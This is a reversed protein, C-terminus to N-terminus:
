YKVFTTVGFHTLFNRHNLEELWKKPNLQYVGYITRYTYSGVNIEIPEPHEQVRQKYEKFANQNPVQYVELVDGIELYKEIYMLFLKNGVGQAEYIYPMSFLDKIDYEWYNDVEKVSFYMVDEEREFVKRNNYEEIEDPIQFPKSSALFTIRTM